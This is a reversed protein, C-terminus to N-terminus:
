CSIFFEWIAKNLHLWKLCQQKANNGWIDIFTCVWGDANISHTDVDRSAVVTVARCVKLEVGSPHATHTLILVNEHYISIMSCMRFCLCLCAQTGSGQTHSRLCESQFSSGRHENGLLRMLSSPSSWHSRLQHKWLTRSSNGPGPSPFDMHIM